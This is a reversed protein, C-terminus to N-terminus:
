DASAIRKVLDDLEDEVASELFRSTRGSQRRKHAELSISALTQHEKQDPNFPPVHMFQLVTTGIQKGLLFGGLWARVPRSNLFACLYHAERPNAFSAFYLKHDPVIVRNPIIAEDGVGAVVSARFRQPNQQEMWVVKHPAFSYNGICFIAYPPLRSSYRKYTSRDRLLDVYNMLYSYAAPYKDAFEEASEFERYHRNPIIQYWGAMGLSYRGTERGRLLPFLVDAEIWAGETPEVLRARPLEDERLTRILARNTVPSYKEVKVWYVRALDNVTGRHAVQLYRSSGRLFQVSRFKAIDGTWLPSGFGAVPCAVGEQIRVQTLVQFLSLTPDIRSSNSPEWIRCPIQDFPAQAYSEVKTALYLGTENSADPFPQISSVDEISDMRIGSSDPLKGIRFGKASGSKFVTWTILIGIRGGPDLWHDVASFAMVTAIDSEIGGTYSRGSVLGYYDCFRKVRNRYTSPLRSWRVWPVNGVVYDVKGFARPSFNNKVIRCWIRDWPPKRTNLDKISDYFHALHKEATKDVYNCVEPMTRLRAMFSSVTRNREIYQECELLIRGLM